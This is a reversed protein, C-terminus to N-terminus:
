TKGQKEGRVARCILPHLDLSPILGEGFHLKTKRRSIGYDLANKICLAHLLPRKLGCVSFVIQKTNSGETKLHM